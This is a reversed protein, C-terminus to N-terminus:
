ESNSFPISVTFTTGSGFDSEAHLAWGHRECVTRCIALGIGTGDYQKRDHLRTFAEFIRALNEPKIGIGNDVICIDTGGDPAVASSVRVHPARDAPHYKLANSILNHFLQSVLTPDGSIVPMKGIEVAADAESAVIELDQLIGQMTEGLNIPDRRIEKGSASSLLLIDRVLQRMRQASSSIVDVFYRGDDSLEDGCDQILYETFQVLKRLPEQLDHSAVHAFQELSQNANLLRANNQELERNLKQVVLSNRQGTVSDTNHLLHEMIRDDTDPAIEEPISQTPRVEEHLTLLYLDAEEPQDSVAELRITVLTQDKESTDLQFRREFPLHGPSRICDLATTVVNRLESRVLDGVQQSFRGECLQVFRAADGFVRVVEGSRKILFGPPAFRRLLIDLAEQEVGDANMSDLSSLPKGSTPDQILVM